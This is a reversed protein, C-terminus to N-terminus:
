CQECVRISATAFDGPVNYVVKRAYIHINEEGLKAGLASSILTPTMRCYIHWVYSILFM